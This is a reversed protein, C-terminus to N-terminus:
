YAAIKGRVEANWEEQKAKIEAIRKRYYDKTRNNAEYTRLIQPDLKMTREIIDSTINEIIDEEAKSYNKLLMDARIEKVVSDIKMLQEVPDTIENSFLDPNEKALKEYVTSVSEGTENRLSLTGFASTRFGNWDEFQRKIDDTVKIETNRIEKLLARVDNDTAGDYIAEAVARFHKLAIEPNVKKNKYVYEYAERFLPEIKGVWTESGYDEVIERLFKNVSAVSASKERSNAFEEVLKLNEAKAKEVRKSIEEFDESQDEEYAPSVSSRSDSDNLGADPNENSFRSFRTGTQHYRTVPTARSTMEQLIQIPTLISSADKLHKLERTNRRIRSMTICLILCLWIQLGDTLVARSNKMLKYRTNFRTFWHKKLKKMPEETKLFFKIKTVSM